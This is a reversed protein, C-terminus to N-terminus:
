KKASEIQERTIARMKHSDGNAPLRRFPISIINHEELQHVLKEAYIKWDNKDEATQKMAQEQLAIKLTLPRLAALEDEQAKNNGLLRAYEQGLREWAESLAEQAQANTLPAISKRAQWSMYINAVQVILVVIVGSWFELQSM